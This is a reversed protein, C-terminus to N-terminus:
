PGSLLYARVVPNIQHPHDTPSMGIPFINSLPKEATMLVWSSFAFMYVFGKPFIRSFVQTKICSFIVRKCLYVWHIRYPLSFNAVVPLQCIKSVKGRSMLYRHPSCKSIKYSLSALVLSLSFMHGCLM